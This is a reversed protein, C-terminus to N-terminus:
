ENGIDPLGLVPYEGTLIRKRIEYGGCDETALYECSRCYPLGWVQISWCDPTLDKQHIRKTRMIFEEGGIKVKEYMLM